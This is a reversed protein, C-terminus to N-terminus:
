GRSRSGATRCGTRADVSVGQFRAAVRLVGYGVLVPDETDGPVVPRSTPSPRRSMRPRRWTRRGAGRRSRRPTRRYGRRPRRSSTAARERRWQRALALVAADRRADGGPRRSDPDAGVGAWTDEALAVGSSRPRCVLWRNEAALWPVSTPPNGQVLRRAGRRRTRDLHPAPRRRRTVRLVAEGIRRGLSSRCPTASRGSPLRRRAPSGSRTPSRRCGLPRVSPSPATRTRTSTGTATRPSTRRSRGSVDNPDLRKYKDDFIDDRYRKLEPDLDSYRTDHTWRRSRWRTTRASRGHSTTTSGTPTRGDAVGAAPEGSSTPRPATTTSGARHVPDEGDGNSPRWGGEVEPLDGIANEVTVRRRVRSAVRVRRREALAVLILRQRFQPVGYRWTDVVREEVSYGLEELREVMTRLIFM